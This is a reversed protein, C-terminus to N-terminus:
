TENYQVWTQKSFTEYTIAIGTWVKFVLTTQEGIMLIRKPFFFSTQFWNTTQTENWFWIPSPDLRTKNWFSNSKYM